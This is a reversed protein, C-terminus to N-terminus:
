RRLGGKRTASEVLARRVTRHRGKWIAEFGFLFLALGALGLLLFNVRGTLPAQGGQAAGAEIFAILALIEDSTLPHDNFLPKMTATPPSLLWAALAKRGEIREYVRTLDPGLRGGGLGPVGQVTHCSVCAPGGNTLAQRGLFLARGEAVDAATFAQDTIQLGVFDSEEKASEEAILDLLGAARDSTMGSITPMVVGNFQDVLAVAQPDGADVMAKPDLMWRILWDRDRQETVGKLDPGTLPGGGITHCNFCNQRFDDALGAASVSRAPVVLAVMLGLMLGIQKVARIRM